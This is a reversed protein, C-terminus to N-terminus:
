EITFRMLEVPEPVIPDSDTASNNALNPDVWGYPPTVSVTNTLAGTAGSLLCQTVVVISSGPPLSVPEAISGFGSAACSAGGSPTCNWSFENCQAPMADVLQTPSADSPGPNAVQMTCTVVHGATVQSVGNSKLTSLDGSAM